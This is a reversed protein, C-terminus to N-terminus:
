RCEERADLDHIRLALKGEARGLLAHAFARGEVSVLAPESRELDFPIVDGAELALLQALPVDCGPLSACLEVEISALHTPLSASSAVAPKPPAPPAQFGPLFARLTSPESTGRLVLEIVLRHPDAGSKADKWSGIEKVSTVLQPESAALGFSKALQTAVAGLLGAIVKGEVKSLARARPEGKTAGLIREVAAVAAQVDWTIWAPQAGIRLRLMALPEKADAFLSEGNIESVSGLAIAYSAGFSDALALELACLGKALTSELAAIQADSLRCPRKFDRPEVARRSARAVDSGLIAQFEEPEVNTTM